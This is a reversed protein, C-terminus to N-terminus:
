DSRVDHRMAGREEGTVGAVKGCWSVGLVLVMMTAPWMALAYRPLGTQVASVLLFNAHLAVATYALAGGDARQHRGFMSALGALSLVLALVLAIKIPWYALAPLERYTLPHRMTYPAAEALTALRASFANRDARNRILPMLWLGYVHTAAHTVYGAPHHAVTSVTLSQAIANMRVFATRANVGPDNRRVYDLIAPRVADLVDHYASSSAMYYLDTDKIRGLERRTTETRDVITATLGPYATPTRGDLLHAVYGIAAYGGYAQTAFVGSRAFNVAGAAVLVTALAAVFPPVVVRAHRRTLWLLAPAALLFSYGSPKLLVLVAALVGLASAAPRTPRRLLRLALALHAQVASVFFAEPLVTFAYSMLAPNGLISAELGIALLPHIIPAAEVALWAATLALAAVQLGELWNLPVARLLLPYGATRGVDAQLYSASDPAMFPLAHFAPSVAAVAVAVAAIVCAAAATRDHFSRTV